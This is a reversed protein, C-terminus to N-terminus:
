QVFLTWKRTRMGAFVGRSGSCFTSSFLRQLAFTWALRPGAFGTARITSLHSDRSRDRNMIPRSFLSISTFAVRSVIGNNIAAIATM